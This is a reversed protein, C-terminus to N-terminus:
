RSLKREIKKIAEARRDYVSKLWDGTQKWREREAPTAYACVAEHKACTSQSNKAMGGQDRRVRFSHGCHQCQLNARERVM